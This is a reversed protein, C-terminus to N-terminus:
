KYPFYVEVSIHTAIYKKRAQQIAMKTKTNTM